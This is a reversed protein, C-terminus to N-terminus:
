YKSKTMKRLALTCFYAAQRSLRKADEPKKNKLAALASNILGAIKLKYGGANGSRYIEKQAIELKREIITINHIKGAVSLQIRANRVARIQGPQAFADATLGILISISFIFLITKKM